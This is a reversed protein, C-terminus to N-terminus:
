NRELSACMASPQDVKCGLGLHGAKALVLDSNLTQTRITRRWVSMVREWVDYVLRWYQSRLGVLDLAVGACVGKEGACVTPLGNAAM